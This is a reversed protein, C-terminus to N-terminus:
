ISTQSNKKPSKLIIVMKITIEEVRIVDLVDTFSFTFAFDAQTKVRVPIGEAAGL